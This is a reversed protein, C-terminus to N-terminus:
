LRFAEAMKNAAARMQKPDPRVYFNLTTSANTHGLIEQVSKIDAGSGLLLTACSHRLDHPSLDPLGHRKMFRKVRRTVANPDRPSFPGAQGHFLFSEELVVDPFNKQQQTRLQCLLSLMSDLLPVARVSATTKPSSVVTGQATTHTVHREVHLLAHATDVDQWQLGLCEGRRLGTTLMLYLLCRFDLPCSGLASFFTHAEEESLADVQHKPLKPKEVTDMPDKPILGQKQAFAFIRRLTRDHHQVYQPSFGRETRLYALFRQLDLGQMKQLSHGQFYDVINGMTDEYFAVTKPKHAGDEICLPFWTHRVFSAFDTRLRSMERDQAQQPHRLDYEYAARTEREWAEAARKAAKAAKAPSLGQPVPWTTCRFIQKNDADRGVCVRFKYSVLAGKRKQPTITAM